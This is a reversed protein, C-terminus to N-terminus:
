FRSRNFRLKIYEKILVLRQNWRYHRWYNILFRLRGRALNAPNNLRGGLLSEARFLIFAERAREVRVGRLMLDLVLSRDEGSVLCPDFGRGRVFTERCVSICSGSVGPNGMLLENRFWDQTWVPVSKAAVVQGTAMIKRSGLVVKAGTRRYTAELQILYDSEWADDDDLFALHSGGALVAGLNRAQSVGMMPLARIMKVLPYDIFLSSDAQDRGNDVVLIEHPAKTQNTVSELAQLLYAPRDCTPVIVSFTLKDM